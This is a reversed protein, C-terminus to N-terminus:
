VVRYGMALLAATTAYRYNLEFRVGCHWRFRGPAFPATPEATLTARLLSKEDTEGNQM